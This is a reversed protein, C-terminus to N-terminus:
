DAVASLTGAGQWVVPGYACWVNWCATSCLSITTALSDHSQWGSDCSRGAASVPHGNVVIYGTTSNNSLECSWVTGALLSQTEIIGSGQSIYVCRHLRNDQFVLVHTSLVHWSNSGLLACADWGWCTYCFVADSDNILRWHILHLDFIVKSQLSTFGFTMCQNSLLFTWCNYTMCSFANNLAVWTVRLLDFVESDIVYGYKLNCLACM